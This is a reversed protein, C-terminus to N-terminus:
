KSSTTHENAYLINDLETNFTTHRELHNWQHCDHSNRVSCALARAALDLEPFRYVLLNIMLECLEMDYNGFSRHQATEESVEPREAEQVVALPRCARQLQLSLLWPIPRLRATQGRAITTKNSITCFLPFFSSQVYSGHLVRDGRLVSSLYCCQM